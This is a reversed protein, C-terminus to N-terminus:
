HKISATKGAGVKGMRDVLRGLNSLSLIHAYILGLTGSSFIEMVTAQDLARLKAEDVVRLGSLRFQSGDNLQAVSDADRLLGLADIRAGMAETSQAGHQFDRLFGIAQDLQQTPKGDTFLAEGDKRDFCPAEEDICVVLQGQADKGPVFPYRRVFAPIYRADWQGDSGVFLNEQERLGLLVAPVTGQAGRAFVIPYERACESFEAALIPVSNSQSAFLFRTVPKVRLTAHVQDNLAVVRKYFLMESM